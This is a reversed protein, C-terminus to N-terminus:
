PILHKCSIGYFANPSTYLKGVGCPCKIVLRFEADMSCICKGDAIFSIVAARKDAGRRPFSLDSLQLAAFDITRRLVTKAHLVSFNNPRPDPSILKRCRTTHRRREGPAVVPIHGLPLLHIIRLSCSSLTAFLRDGDLSGSGVVFLESV